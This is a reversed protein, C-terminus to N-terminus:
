RLYPLYKLLISSLVAGFFRGGGVRSWEGREFLHATILINSNSTGLKFTDVDKFYLLLLPFSLISDYLFLYRDSHKYFIMTM